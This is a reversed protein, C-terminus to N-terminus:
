LFLRRPAPAKVFTTQRLYIPELQEGAVSTKGDAALRALRAARPFVVRGEPFWRTVEPGVLQRGSAALAQVEELSSLKLPGTQRCEAPSLEYLASYFEGRQADIIVAIRGLINEARAQAAICLASSIGVLPTGQALQWGQALAIAARIGTYSGPGTGVLIREIERARVGAQQLLEEIRAFSGMVRGTEVSEFDAVAGDQGSASCVVALSRQVSSFDTALIRM